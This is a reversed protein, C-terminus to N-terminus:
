AGWSSTYLTNITAFLIFVALRWAEDEGTRSKHIRWGYYAFFYAM